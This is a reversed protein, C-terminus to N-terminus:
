KQGQTLWRHHPAQSTSTYTHARASATATVGAALDSAAAKTRRFRRSTLGAHQERNFSAKIMMIVWMSLMHSISIAHTSARNTDALYVHLVCSGQQVTDDSPKHVLMHVLMDM